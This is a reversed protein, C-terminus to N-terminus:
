QNKLDEFDEFNKFQDHESRNLIYTTKTLKQNIEATSKAVPKIQSPAHLLQAQSNLLSNSVPKVSTGM